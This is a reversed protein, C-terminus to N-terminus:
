FNFLTSLNNNFINKYDNKSQELIEEEIFPYNDMGKKQAETLLIYYDTNANLKLTEIPPYIQPYGGQSTKLLFENLFNNIKKGSTKFLVMKLGYPFISLLNFTNIKEGNYFINTSRIVGSPLILIDSKSFDKCITNYIKKTIDTCQIERFNRFDLNNKLIIEQFIFNNKIYSIAKKYLREKCALNEKLLASAKMNFSIQKTKVDITLHNIYKLDMGGNCYAPFSTYKKDKYLGRCMSQFLIGSMSEHNSSDFVLDVNPVVIDFTNSTSEKKSEEESNFFSDLHSIGIIYDCKQSKLYEVCEISVEKINPNLYFTKNFEEATEKKLKYITGKDLVAFIGVKANNMKLIITRNIYSYSNLPKLNSCLWNISSNKFWHIANQVGFDFEHNGVASVIVNLEELINISLEGKDYISVGGGGFYDGGGLVISNKLLTTSNYVHSVNTINYNDSFYFVEQFNKNLKITIDPHLPQLLGEYKKIIKEILM